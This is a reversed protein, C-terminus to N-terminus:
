LTPGQASRLVIQYLTSMPDWFEVSCNGIKRFTQMDWRRSYRLQYIRASYLVEINNNNNNNCEQVSISKCNPCWGENDGFSKELNLHALSRVTTRSGVDKEYGKVPANNMRFVCPTEDIEQGANSDILHGSSSVVACRSCQMQLLQFYLILIPKVKQLRWPVYKVAISFFDDYFWGLNAENRLFSRNM